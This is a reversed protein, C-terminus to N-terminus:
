LMKTQRKRRASEELTLGLDSGPPLPLPWWHSQSASGYVPSPPSLRCDLCAGVHEEIIWWWYLITARQEPPGWAGWCALCLSHHRSWMTPDYKLSISIIRSTIRKRARFLPPQQANNVDIPWNCCRDFHSLVWVSVSHKRLKVPTAPMLNLILMHTYSALLTYWTSWSIDKINAWWNRETTISM